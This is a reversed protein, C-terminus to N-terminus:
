SYISMEKKTVGGFKSRVYLVIFILNFVNLDIFLDLPQVSIGIFLYTLLFSPAKLTWRMLRTLIAIMLFSVLLHQYYDPFSSGEYLAALFTFQCLVISILM